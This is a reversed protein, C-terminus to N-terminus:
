TRVSQKSRKKSFIAEYESLFAEIKRNADKVEGALVHLHALGDDTIQYVRRAPGPNDTDWSSQVLGEDELNRLNRYLNGPDPGIEDHQGLTEMLEYGHAPKQALKILLRPQLFGPVRRGRCRCSTSPDSCNGCM